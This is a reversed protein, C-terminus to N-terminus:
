NASPRDICLGLRRLKQRFQNPSSTSNLQHAGVNHLFKKELEFLQHLVSPDERIMEMVCYDQVEDTVCLLFAVLLGRQNKDM